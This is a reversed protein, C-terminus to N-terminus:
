SFSVNIMKHERKIHKKGRKPFVEINVEHGWGVFINGTYWGRSPPIELNSANACLSLSVQSARGKKPLEPTIAWVFSGNTYALLLFHEEGKKTHELTASDSEFMSQIYIPSFASDSNSFSQSHLTYVGLFKQFMKVVKKEKDVERIQYHVPLHGM